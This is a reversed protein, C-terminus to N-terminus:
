AGEMFLIRSCNRCNVIKDDRMLLNIEQATLNIFCGQCVGDSVAAIGTGNRGGAIREYQQLIDAPVERIREERKALLDRIEGDIEKRESEAQRAIKEQEKAGADLVIKAAAIERAMEELRDMHKLLNEEVVAAEAKKHAIENVFAAYEKNTKATNMQIQLNRSAEEITRLDLELRDTERRFAKSAEEAEQVKRRKAEVEKGRSSLIAPWRSDEKRLKRIELDVEQISKLRETLERTSLSM